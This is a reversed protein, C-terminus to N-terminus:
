VHWFYANGLEMVVVLAALTAALAPSLLGALVVLYLVERVKSLTPRPGCCRVLLWAGVLGELANVLAFAFSVVLAKGVLLNALVAAAIVALLIFPWSPTRSIVLVGLLLGSPPWFSAINQPQVLLTVGIRASIFYALGILIARALRRLSEHAALMKMGASREPMQCGDSHM